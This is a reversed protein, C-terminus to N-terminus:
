QSQGPAPPNAGHGATSATSEVLKLAGIVLLIVPWTHSFSFYSDGRWMDLLFLVGLTILIAPGMLGRCTCRACSCRSQNAM